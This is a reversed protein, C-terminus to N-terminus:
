ANVVDIGALLLVIKENVKEAANSNEMATIITELSFYTVPMAKVYPLSFSLSGWCHIHWWGVWLVWRPKHVSLFYSWILSVLIM